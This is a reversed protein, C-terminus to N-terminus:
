KTIYLFLQSAGVCITIYFLKEIKNRYESNCVKCRKDNIIAM